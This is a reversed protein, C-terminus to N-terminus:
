GNENSPTITGHFCDDEEAEYEHTLVPHHASPLTPVVQIQLNIQWHAFRTLMDQASVTEQSMRAATAQVRV